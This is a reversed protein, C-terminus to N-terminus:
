SRRGRPRVAAASAQLLQWVGRVHREETRFAGIAVRIAYKGGLTTQTVQATGSANIRAVIAANHAAIAVENGVLAPPVHRVVVLGLPTPALREWEPTADVWAALQNGLAIHERIMTRLAEAGYNRLVFWLKLARFRRGLPIGWDRYNVVDADHRTRLYPPATSFTELLAPVDRVFYCSCDFNTMLWKHPNTVMSDALEVGDLLPRVEPLIAASGGYAADVHYWAGHAHALEGIPRLPDCATSSTTGMTAVVMLPTLGSAVDAVMLAALADPRMAFDGDVGVIRWHAEPIGAMRAAKAVSSHAEASWYATCRALDGGARQRATLFAVLTASSATDQIVGTFGEPLGVLRRYWEMVVQELETAAPSTVWSMCQAGLGAALLEGLISPPSSNSPFYAFWGPHGWHTMGPVIQQRFDTLIADFSEGAEPAAEPLARRLAGPVVDPTIRYQEIDRLYDALWDVIAHGHRRFEEPEM